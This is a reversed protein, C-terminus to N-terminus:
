RLAAAQLEEVMRRFERMCTVLSSEEADERWDAPIAHREFDNEVASGRHAEAEFLSFTVAVNRSAVEGGPNVFLQTLVYLYHTPRNM